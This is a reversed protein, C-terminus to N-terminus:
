AVGGSLFTNPDTQNAWVSVPTASGDALITQPDTGTAATLDDGRYGVIGPVNNWDDLTTILNTNSWNQTFPVSQANGNAFAIKSLNFNQSFLALLVFISVLGVYYKKM